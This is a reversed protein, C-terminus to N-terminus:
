NLGARAELPSTAARDGSWCTGGPCGSWSTAGPSVPPSLFGGQM